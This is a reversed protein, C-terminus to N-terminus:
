QKRYTVDYSASCTPFIATMVGSGSSGDHSWTIQVKLTSHGSSDDCETTSTVQCQDASPTATSTCGSVAADGSASAGYFVLTEALEACTGTRKKPTVVYAGSRDACPGSPERAESSCGVVLFPLVWLGARNM